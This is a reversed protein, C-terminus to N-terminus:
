PQHYAVKQSRIPDAFLKVMYTFSSPASALTKCMTALLRSSKYPCMPIKQSSYSMGTTTDCLLRNTRSNTWYAFLCTAAAHNSYQHSLFLTPQLCFYFCSPLYSDIYGMWLSPVVTLALAGWFLEGFVDM